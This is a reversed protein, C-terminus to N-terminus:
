IEILTVDPIVVLGLIPQWDYQNHHEMGCIISWHLTSIQNTANCHDMIRWRDDIMSM